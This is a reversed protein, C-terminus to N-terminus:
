YLNLAFQKKHFVIKIKKASSHMRCAGEGKGNKGWAGKEASGCGSYPQALKLQPFCEDPFPAKPETGGSARRIPGEWVRRSARRRKVEASHVFTRFGFFM